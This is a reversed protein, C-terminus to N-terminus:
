WVGIMDGPLESSVKAWHSKMRGWRMVLLTIESLVPNSRSICISTAAIMSLLM